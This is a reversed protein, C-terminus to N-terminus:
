GGMQLYLLQRQLDTVVRELHLEAVVVLQQLILVVLADLAAEGQVGLDLLLAAPMAQQLGPLHPPHLSPLTSSDHYLSFQQPERLTRLDYSIDM